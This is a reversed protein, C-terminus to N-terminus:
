LRYINDIRFSRLGDAVMICLCVCVCANWMYVHCVYVVAPASIPALGSTSLPYPQYFHSDVLFPTQLIFQSSFFFL